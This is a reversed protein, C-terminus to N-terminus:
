SLDLHKLTVKKGTPRQPRPKKEETAELYARVHRDWDFRIVGLRYSQLDGSSRLRYIFSTSIKLEESLEEVSLIWPRFFKELDNLRLNHQQLIAEVKEVTLM